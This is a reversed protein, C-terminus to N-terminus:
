AAHRPDGQLAGVLTGALGGAMIYWAGPVLAHVLVAALASTAWPLASRRGRWLSALLVLFVATFAFDFGYRAPDSVLGGFLAGLTTCATWTVYLPLAMGFYFAPTLPGEAARKLSLAWIEDALFFLGTYAHGRSWPALGPALAAGMLVHRLNVLLATAALALVPVPERWLDVAVFQASGAFVTASMLLTELPTLGKQAALAGLLLGFPVVSVAIPLIQFSGAAFDAAPRAKKRDGLCDDCATM